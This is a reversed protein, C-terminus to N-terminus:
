LTPPYVLSPHGCCQPQLLSDRSPQGTTLPETHEPVGGDPGVDRDRAVAHAGPLVADGGPVVLNNYRGKGARERGKSCQM